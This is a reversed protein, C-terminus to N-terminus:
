LSSESGTPAVGATSVLKAPPFRAFTLATQVTCTSRRRWPWWWTRPQPRCVTCRRREDVHHLRLLHALAAVMAVLRREAAAHEGTGYEGALLYALLADLERQQQLHSVRAMAISM